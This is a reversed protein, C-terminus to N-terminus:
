LSYTVEKLWEAWEAESKEQTFTEYPIPKGVKITFTKNKQNFFEDVLYMMEINVKIGLKKRYYALNYFFASNRGEFFLPVINRQYQTAKKVFTKKWENDKITGDQQRRSCQGAPFFLIAADSECAENILAGTNKAQGGTKSIPIFYDKLNDIYMLFDNVPVKLKPYHATLVQILAIGDAGGLPHNCAFIVKPDDPLNEEGIINFQIHFHNRLIAEAFDRGQYTGYNRFVYNIEDQHIVRKIYNIIFKPVKPAIKPFKAALIKEINIKETLSNESGM